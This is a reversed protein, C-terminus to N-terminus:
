MENLFKWVQDELYARSGTNRIVYMDTHDSSINTRRVDQSLIRGLARFPSLGSRKLLRRFRIHVPAEVWLVKDCFLDLEMRFLVAANVAVHYKRHDLLLEGVKERMWPHVIAELAALKERDSFVITGLRTRDISGSEGLIGDGFRARIEQEMAILAEHGLLDVDICFFGTKALIDCVTNKGSCMPGAIGLVLRDRDHLSDM